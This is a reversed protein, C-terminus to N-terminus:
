KYMIENCNSYFLLALYIHNLKSAYEPPICPISVYVAGLKNKGAQSGLPNGSEFDDFYVFLPFVNMKGSHKFNKVKERWLTGQIINSLIENENELSKTYQNICDLFGEMEFVAKFIKRLPIFKGIVNVSQMTVFTNSHSPKMRQGIIYDQPEIFVNHSQFYKLRKYETNLNSLPQSVSQLAHKVYTKAGASSVLEQTDLYKSVKQEVIPIFCDQLFKSTHEVIFQVANRPILSNHYLTSIFKAYELDESSREVVELSSNLINTDSNPSCPSESNGNNNSNNFINSVQQIEDPLVTIVHNGKIHKRFSNSTSFVRTCNPETCQYIDNTKLNHVYKFHLFLNSTSDFVDNCKFCIM